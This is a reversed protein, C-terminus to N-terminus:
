RTIPASQVLVPRPHFARSKWACLARRFLLLERLRAKRKRQMLNPSYVSSRM